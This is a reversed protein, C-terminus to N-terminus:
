AMGFAYGDMWALQEYDHGYGVGGVGGDGKNNNDNMIM